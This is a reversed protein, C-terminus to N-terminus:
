KFLTKNQLIAKICKKLPTYCYKIYTCREINYKGRRKGMTRLRMFFNDPRGQFEDRHFTENLLDNGFVIVVYERGLKLGVIDSKYRQRLEELALYQGNKTAALKSLQYTNGV